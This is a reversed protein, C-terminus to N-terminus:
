RVVLWTGILLVGFGLVRSPDLLRPREVLLGQHDLWAGVLLQALVVLTITTAVGVRPICFSLAGVLVLGLVGSGLVYWPLSRWETLVAAGPVGLFLAAAVMGGLHVIFISGVIGVQKAMVSALPGQLGAAVGGLLAVVVVVSPGSMKQQRGIRGLVRTGARM